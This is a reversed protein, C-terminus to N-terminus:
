SRGAMLTEIAEVSKVVDASLVFHGEDTVVVDDEIRIAIGRYQAPIREDTLSLYLGPEVTLVMGPILPRDVAKGRAGPIRDRGVDHVDLGLWHGLGHPFIEGLPLGRKAGKGEGALKFGLKRLGDKLAASCIEDLHGMTAGPKVAAIAAEQAALVVEYIERQAQSFRGNVPFTRTIDSAYGTLECGADILVLQGENLTSLGAPHHLSLGNAGAAVITDYSPGTNGNATFVFEIVAKLDSERMGPKCSLMASTHAAAAIAASHRMIEIEAPSKVLRQESVLSDVSARAELKLGKLVAEVKSQLAPDSMPTPSGSFYVHEVGALLRRLNGGLTTISFARDAGYVSVANELGVRKGHWIESHRDQRSVFLVFKRKGKKKTMVLATNPEPFGTLYLLDSNQRFAFTNDYGNRLLEPAALLVVASKDPLTSFLQERRREFEAPSPTPIGNVWAIPNKKDPM